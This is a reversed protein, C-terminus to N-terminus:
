YNDYLKEYVNIKREIFQQSYENEFEDKKNRLAKYLQLISNWHRKLEIRKKAFFDSNVIFLKKYMLSVFKRNPAFAIDEGEIGIDIIKNESKNFYFINQEKLFSIMDSHISYNINTNYSNKLLIKTKSNRVDLLVVSYVGAYGTRYVMNFNDIWFVESSSSIGNIIKSRNGSFLMAKYNGGSGNLVLMKKRDPSIYCLSPSSSIIIDKYKKRPLLLRQTKTDLASEIIGKSNEYIMSSGEPAVTFDLFGYNTSISSVLGSSLDVILTDGRPIIGKTQTLRKIIFYRGNNTVKAITIVGNIKGVEVSKRDLLKYKFIYNTRLLDSEKIYVIESGSIWSAFIVDRDVLVANVTRYTELKELALKKSFVSSKKLYINDLNIDRATLPFPILLFATLVIPKFSIKLIKYKTIEHNHLITLIWFRSPIHNM